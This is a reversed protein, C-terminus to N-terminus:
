LVFSSHNFPGGWGEFGQPGCCIEPGAAAQEFVHRGQDRQVADEEQEPRRNRMREVDDPEVEPVAREVQEVEDKWVAWDAVDDGLALGAESSVPGRVDGRADIVAPARAGRQVGHGVM